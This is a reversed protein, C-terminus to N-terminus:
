LLKPHKQNQISSRYPVYGIIIFKLFVTPWEEGGFKMNFVSMTNGELQYEKGMEKFYSVVEKKTTKGLHFDYFKRQIQPFLNLSIFTLLLLLGTKKM